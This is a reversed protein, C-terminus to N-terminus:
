RGIMSKKIVRQSISYGIELRPYILFLTTLNTPQSQSKQFCLTVPIPFSRYQTLKKRKTFLHNVSYPFHIIKKIRSTTIIMTIMETVLKAVKLMLREWHMIDIIKEHLHCILITTM